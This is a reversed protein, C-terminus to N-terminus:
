IIDAMATLYAHAKLFQLGCGLDAVWDYDYVRAGVETKPDHAPRRPHVDELVKLSVYPMDLLFGGTPDEADVQPTYVFQMTNGDVTHRLITVGFDTVTREYHVQDNFQREWIPLFRSGHYFTKAKNGFKFARSMFKGITLPNFTDEVMWIRSTGDGRVLDTYPSWANTGEEGDSLNLLYQAGGSKYRTRGLGDTDKKLQGYFLMYEIARTIRTLADERMDALEGSGGKPWFDLLSTLEELSFPEVFSQVYNRRDGKKYGKGTRTGGGVPEACGAFVWNLGDAAGAGPCAVATGGDINRDVTVEHASPTGTVRAEEGLITKYAPTINAQYGPIKILDGILFVSSDDVYFSTASQDLPAKAGASYGWLMGSMVPYPRTFMDYELDTVKDKAGRDTLISLLPHDAPKLLIANKSRDYKLQQASLDSRTLSGSWNAM